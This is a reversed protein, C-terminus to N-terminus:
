AVDSEMGMGMDMDMDVERVRALARYHQTTRLAHYVAAAAGLMAVGGSLCRPAANGLYGLAFLLPAVVAVHLVNVTRHYFDYPRVVIFYTQSVAMLVAITIAIGRVSQLALSGDALTDTYILGGLVALVIGIAIHVPFLVGRSPIVDVM